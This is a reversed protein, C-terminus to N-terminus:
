KMGGPRVYKDIWNEKPKKDQSVGWTRWTTETSNTAETEAAVSLAPRPPMRSNPPMTLVNTQPTKYFGSMVQSVYLDSGRGGGTPDKTNSPQVPMPLEKASPYMTANPKPKEVAYRDYTQQGNGDEAAYAAAMLDDMITSETKTGPVYSKVNSQQKPEEMERYRSSPWLRSTHVKNARDRRRLCKWIIFCITALIVVGGITGFAIVADNGPSDGGDDSTSPLQAQNNQPQSDQGNGTDISPAQSPSVSIASTFTTPTSTALNTTTSTALNTTTLPQATTPQIEIVPQTTTQPISTTTAVSTEAPPPFTGTTPSPTDPEGEDESDSPDSEEGPDQVGDRINIRLDRARLRKQYTRSRM